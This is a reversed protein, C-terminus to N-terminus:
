AAEQGREIRDIRHETPPHSHKRLWPFPVPLDNALAHTDLFTSLPLAEGLKAAYRDAQFERARWYAAWPLRMVWMAAEGTALFAVARLPQGLRRRPPTALRHLAATLRADSSNLHGLEHALVATLHPTELLGRTIMLTDGYAAANTEPGDLVCWRRPRRLGPSRRALQDMADDYILRERESPARGGVSQQWWWGGVPLVLTAASLVLPGYAAAWTLGGACGTSLGVRVCAARVLPYVVVGRVTACLLALAFTAAYLMVWGPAVDSASLVYAGASPAGGPRGGHPGSPVPKLSGRRQGSSRAGSPGRRRPSSGAGYGSPFRASSSM